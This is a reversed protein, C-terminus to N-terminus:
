RRCFPRRRSHRRYGSMYLVKLGQYRQCLVEAVESGNVGAPLVVDTLLLAPPSKAQSLAADVDRISGAQFVQYGARSLVQAVLRRVPAEDEVVLIVETGREMGGELPSDDKPVALTQTAPLYVRFRSGVGPESQVSISGGTQKVTGFVTSLGLGTGKGVEKTTFFPEFIRARTEEDMGCGTDSVALMVYRGPEVEPHNRVDRANLRVGSTEVTLDGGEPMADRANLALNMLVQEMQHPDVETEELDPALFFHLDIHEGLTRRLLPEMSAVIDNLQLVRPKLIQRRSFALIQRTLGAAREGVEKVDLILERNPDEPSMANLALSSNGIIATLLNNFDHAIGGALQGVAEMKQAQRLQQESERLEEEARKRETIDRVFGFVLDEGGSEVSNSSVEVPFLEGDKTLHSSEFTMSGREKLATFHEPWTEKSTNPDLDFITKTLMEERSYGHRRCSSESANVIRGDGAVWQILDGARDVTLQALRLAEEARKRETIDAALGFNYEKGAFIVYNATAQIPFSEGAKTCHISEFTLFGKEKLKLWHNRWLQPAAADIDTIRMTLLEERSYGLRKCAHDNVSVFRGEPDVWFMSIGAHDVSFQALKLSEEVQKRETIDRAFACNYEKDEYGLYNVNVEVPFIEGNRRRHVTEVTFAGQTKMRKWNESWQQRSLSPDVDFLTMALLEERSYGLSTCTSDSVNLLHGTSDTWLVCDAAHDVSFQTFRLTEEAKKHQTIDEVMAITGVPTGDKDKVLSASVNAWVLRGDKHLYRKEMSFLSLEGTYLSCVDDFSRQRDESATVDIISTGVLEAERYGLMECFARNARVFCQDPDVVAIGVSGQEFIGHFREESERLEGEVKKRDGIDRAFVFDFEKGDQELHNASVEVPYLDGSKTRHISEVTLSGAKKLRRWAKPWSEPTLTPDLDFIRLSLMEGRSYGNRRCSAENAFLIRGEPDIWQILDAAGDVSFQILRLSQEIQKRDTVDRSNLVYSVGGARSPLECARVELVRWSGDKHRFRVETSETLKRGGQVLQAFTSHSLDIDDPHIFSFVSEGVFEEPRYGLIPESSPSQFEFIGARDVVAVLDTSNEVLARFRAESQVLEEHTRECEEVDLVLANTGKTRGKKSIGAAM